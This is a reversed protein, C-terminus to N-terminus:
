SNQGSIRLLSLTTVVVNRNIKSVRPFVLVIKDFLLLLFSGSYKPLNYCFDEFYRFSFVFHFM